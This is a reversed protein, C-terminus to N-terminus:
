KRSDIASCLGFSRTGSGNWTSSSRSGPHLSWVQRRQLRASITRRGNQLLFMAKAVVSSGQSVNQFQRSVRQAIFLDLPDLRVLVLELVECVGFVRDMAPPKPSSISVRPSAGGRLLTEAMITTRQTLFIARPHQRSASFRLDHASTFIFRFAHLM